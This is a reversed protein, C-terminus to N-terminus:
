GTASAVTLAQELELASRVWGEMGLERYTQLATRILALAREGDGPEDSALLMRAYDRQTHALWPRAGIRANTTLAAEFHREAEDWRKTTTALLGLYRAVSGRM